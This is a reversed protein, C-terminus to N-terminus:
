KQGARSRLYIGYATWGCACATCVYLAVRTNQAADAEISMGVTPDNKYHKWKKAFQWGDFAAWCPPMCVAITLLIFLLRIWRFTHARTANASPAAYDIIQPNQDNM